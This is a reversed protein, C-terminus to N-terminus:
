WFGADTSVAAAGRDGREAADPVRLPRGALAPPMTGGTAWDALEVWHVIPLDTFRAIQTMCGINGTAIIDPGTSEIHEAKRRGLADAMEPHLLNYTGASGCCFHGEPVDVVDFGLRRLVVRPPETIKQGHRISCPDHYAVKFGFQPGTPALPLEVAIESVDRALGSM